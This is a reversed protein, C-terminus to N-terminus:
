KILNETDTREFTVKNCFIFQDTKESYSLKQYEPSQRSSLLQDEIATTLVDSKNVYLKHCVIFTVLLFAAYACCTVRM